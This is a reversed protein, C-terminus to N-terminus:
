STGKNERDSNIKNMNTQIRNLYDLTLDIEKESFGELMNKVFVIKENWLGSM